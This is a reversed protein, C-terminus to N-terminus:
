KISLKIEIEKQIENAVWRFDFSTTYLKGFGKINSIVTTHDLRGLHSAIAQLTMGTYKKSFYTYMKKANNLELKGKKKRVQELSYGTHADIINSIITLKDATRM